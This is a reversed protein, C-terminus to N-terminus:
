PSMVSVAHFGVAGLVARWFCDAVGPDDCDEARAPISGRGYDGHHCQQSFSPSVPSAHSASWAPSCFMAVREM